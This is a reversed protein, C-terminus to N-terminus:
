SRIILNKILNRVHPEAKKAAELVEKHNVEDINEEDGMDTIVSIGFCEMDM